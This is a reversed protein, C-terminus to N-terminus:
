QHRARYRRRERSRRLRRIRGPQRQAPLPFDLALTLTPIAPLEPTLAPDLEAVAEVRWLPQWRMREDTAGSTTLFGIDEVLLHRTDSLVTLLQQWHAIMAPQVKHFFHQYATATQREEYAPLLTTAWFNAAQRFSPLLLDAFFLVHVTSVREVVRVVATAVATPLDFYAPADFSHWEGYAATLRRMREAVEGVLRGADEVEAALNERRVRYMPPLAGLPPAATFTVAGRNM